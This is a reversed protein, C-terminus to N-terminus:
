IFNAETAELVVGIIRRRIELIMPHDDPSPDGGIELERKRNIRNMFNWGDMNIQYPSLVNPM